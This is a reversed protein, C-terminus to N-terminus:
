CERPCLDCQILDGEWHWYGVPIVHPDNTNIREKSM